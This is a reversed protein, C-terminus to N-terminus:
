ILMFGTHTHTLASSEGKRSHTVFYLLFLFYYYSMTFLSLFPTQHLLSLSIHLIPTRTIKSKVVVGPSNNSRSLRNYYVGNHRCM